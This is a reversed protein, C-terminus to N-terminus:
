LVVGPITSNARIDENEIEFASTNPAIIGTGTTLVPTQFRLEEASFSDVNDITFVPTFVFIMM